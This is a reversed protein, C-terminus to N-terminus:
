ALILFVMLITASVALNAKSKKRGHSYNEAPGDEWQTPPIVDM